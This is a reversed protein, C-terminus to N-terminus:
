KRSTCTFGASESTSDSKFYVGRDPAVLHQYIKWQRLFDLTFVSKSLFFFPDM